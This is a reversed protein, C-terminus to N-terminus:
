TRATTSPRPISSVVTTSRVPIPRFCTEAQLADPIGFPEVDDASWCACPPIQVGPDDDELCPMAPDLPNDARERKKEYNDLLKDCSRPMDEIPYEDCDKAECFANCLGFLGPTVGPLQLVDCVDEQSPPLDDAFASMPVLVLLLSFLALRACKTM